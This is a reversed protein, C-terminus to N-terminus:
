RNAPPAPPTPTPPANTARLANTSITYRALIQAYDPHAQAFNVLDTSFRNMWPVSNTEYDGVVRKLEESARNLELAQIRVLREQYWLFVAATLLLLVMSALILQVQFRLDCVSTDLNALNPEGSAPAFTAAAPNPSPDPLDSNM